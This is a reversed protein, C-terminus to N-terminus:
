EDKNKTTNESLLWGKWVKGWGLWGLFFLYQIYFLSTYVPLYRNATLLPFPLFCHPLFFHVYSWGIIGTITDYTPHDKWRAVKCSKSWISSFEREFNVVISENFFTIYYGSYWGHWVALFVLTVM